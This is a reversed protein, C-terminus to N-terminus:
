LVGFLLRITGPMCIRLVLMSSKNLLVCLQKAHTYRVDLLTTQGVPNHQLKESVDLVAISEHSCVQELTEVNGKSRVCRSTKNLVEARLQVSCKQPINEATQIGDRCKPVFEVSPLLPEKM